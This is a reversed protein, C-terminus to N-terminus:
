VTFKYLIKEFDISDWKIQHLRLLYSQVSIKINKIKPNTNPKWQLPCNMDEYRKFSEEVCLLLNLYLWGFILKFVQIYLSRLKRSFITDFIQNWYSETQQM